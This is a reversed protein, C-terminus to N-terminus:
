MRGVGFLQLRGVGPKTTAASATGTFSVMFQVGSRATGTTFPGTDATKSSASTSYMASYSNPLTFTSYGAPPTTNGQSANFVSGLYVLVDAATNLGTSGSHTSQSAIDSTGLSADLPNSPDAGGIELVHAVTQLAAGSSSFTISTTSGGAVNKAYWCGLRRSLTSPIGEAGGIIFTYANGLGDTPTAWAYATSAQAQALAVFVVSGSSLASPIAISFNTSSGTSSVEQVLSPVAM